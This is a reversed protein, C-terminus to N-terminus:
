NFQTASTMKRPVWFDDKEFIERRHQPTTPGYGLTGQRMGTRTHRAYGPTGTRAHSFRLAPACYIGIEFDNNIILFNERKKSFPVGRIGRIIAGFIDARM